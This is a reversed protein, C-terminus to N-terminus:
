QNESITTEADEQSNLYYYDVQRLGEIVMDYGQSAIERTQNMAAPISDAWLLIKYRLSKESGDNQLVTDKLSAIFSHEGQYQDIIEKIPSAKLSQIEFSEVTGENHYQNLLTMVAYEAQAFVEKDLVYTETTKKPKSDVLWTVKAKVEILM